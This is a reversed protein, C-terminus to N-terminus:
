TKNYFLKKRPHQTLTKLSEAISNMTESDYFEEDDNESGLWMKETDVNRQELNLAM